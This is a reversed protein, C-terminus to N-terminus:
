VEVGENSEIGAGTLAHPSKAAEPLQPMEGAVHKLTQNWQRVVEGLAGRLALDLHQILLDLQDSPLSIENTKLSRNLSEHFTSRVSYNFFRFLYAQLRTSPNVLFDADIKNTWIKHAIYVQIDDKFSPTDAIAAIEQKKSAWYGIFRDSISSLNWLEHFEEDACTEVYKSWNAAIKRISVSGKLHDSINPMMLVFLWKQEADNEQALINKM